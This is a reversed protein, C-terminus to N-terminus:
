LEDRGRELQGTARGIDPADGPRQQLCRAARPDGRDSPGRGTRLVSAHVFAISRTPSGGTRGHAVLPPGALTRCTFAGTSGRASHASGASPARGRVASRSGRTDRTSAGFAEPM